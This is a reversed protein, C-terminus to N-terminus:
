TDFDADIINKVKLFAKELNDAMDSLLDINVLNCDREIEMAITSLEPAAINLAAGKIKHGMYGAEKTSNSNILTKLEKIMGPMSNLFSKLVREALSQDNMLMNLFKEKDWIKVDNTETESFFHDLGEKKLWKKLIGELADFSLPKTIYDDMGANICEEKDSMMAHATLAIVPVFVRKEKKEFLRIKGTAEIGDMEPMQIDMLVLDYNNNIFMDYAKLGNEAIDAEYGLNELIGEAVQQNTLNDEAILIKCNKKLNKEEEDSESKKIGSKKNDSKLFIDLSKILESKRLPKNIEAEFLEKSKNVLKEPYKVLILGTSFLSESKKIVEAFEIIKLGYTDDDTLILDYPKGNASAENIINLADSTNNTKEASAKWYKFHKVLVESLNENDTLVLIRMKEIDSDPKYKGKKKNDKTFEATFWFESGKGKESNVGAEGGMMEALQRSIALGLGTGGHKRRTSTDVQTFKSFIKKQQDASIGIGTDKVSFKLFVRNSSENILSAKVSIRGKNTFKVANGALNTIIQNLRYPDGKLFDPVDPDPFCLFEIGKEYAKFGIIDSINDMVSVISFSIKEMNLKGAEIKSFDLIDNILNLLSNGSIKIAEAYRLQKEDLGTKFLLNTMGIVGNMPTRIEHSMNALFESKIVSAEEAKEKAASLEKNSKELEKTRLTIEERLQESYDANKRQNEILLEQYKQELTRIKRDRHKKHSLLLENENEFSKKQFYYDTALNIFNNLIKIFFSSSSDDVPFFVAYGNMDTLYVAYFIKGSEPNKKSVVDKNNFAKKKLLKEFDHDLRPQDSSYLKKGSDTIIYFDCFFLHKKLFSFFVESEEKQDTLIDDFIDM